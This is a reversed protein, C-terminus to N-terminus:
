KTLEKKLDQYDSVIEVSVRGRTRLKEVVMDKRMQDVTDMDALITRSGSIEELKRNIDRNENLLDYLADEHDSIPEADPNTQADFIRDEFIRGEEYFRRALLAASLEGARQESLKGNLSLFNKKEKHWLQFMRYELIPVLTRSWHISDSM